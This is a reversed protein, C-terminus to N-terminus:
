LKKFIKYDLSYRGAGTVALLLLGGIISINKYFNIENILAEAGSFRWYPHGIITTGITYVVYLIALPRTFIGLVLAIGLFFEVVVSILAALYPVPTGYGQMENITESFGTLKVWGSIIFLLMLLIRAILILWDKSGNNM